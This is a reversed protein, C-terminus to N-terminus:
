RAPRREGNARPGDCTPAEVQNQRRLYTPQELHRIQERSLASAGSPASTIMGQRRGKLSAPARRAFLTNM